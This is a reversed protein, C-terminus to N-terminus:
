WRIGRGSKLRGSPTVTVSRRWRSSISYMDEFRCADEEERLDEEEEVEDDMERGEKEEGEGDDGANAVRRKGGGDLDNECVGLKCPREGRRLDEELSSRARPASRDAEPAASIPIPISSGLCSLDTESPKGPPPIAVVMDMSENLRLRFPSVRGGAGAGTKSPIKSTKSFWYDADRSCFFVLLCSLDGDNSAARAFLGAEAATRM